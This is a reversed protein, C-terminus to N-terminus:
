ALSFHIRDRLEMQDALDVVIHRSGGSASIPSALSATSWDVALEYHIHPLDAWNAFNKENFPVEFVISATAALVYVTFRRM